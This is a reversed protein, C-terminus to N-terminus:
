RSLNKQRITVHVCLRGIADRRAERADDASLTTLDEVTDAIVRHIKKYNAARASYYYSMSLVDFLYMTNHAVTRPDLSTDLLNQCLGHLADSPANRVLKTLAAVEADSLYEDTVQQLLDADIGTMQPNRAIQAGRVM